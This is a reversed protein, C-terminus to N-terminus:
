IAMRFAGSSIGIVPSVMRPRRGKKHPPSPHVSTMVLGRLEERSDRAEGGTGLDLGTRGTVSSDKIQEEDTSKKRGGWAVNLEHQSTHFASQVAAGFRVVRDPDDNRASGTPRARCSEKM